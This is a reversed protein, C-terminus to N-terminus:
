SLSSEEVSPSALTSPEGNVQKSPSLSGSTMSQASQSSQLGGGSNGGRGSFRMVYPGGADQKVGGSAGGGRGKSPGAGGPGQFLISLTFKLILLYIKSFGNSSALALPL